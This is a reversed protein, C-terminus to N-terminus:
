WIATAQREEARKEGKQGNMGNPRMLYHTEPLYLIQSLCFLFVFLQSLFSLCPYLSSLTCRSSSSLAPYLNRTQRYLIM